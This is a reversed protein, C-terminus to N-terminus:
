KTRIASLQVLAVNWLGSFRVYGKALAFCLVACIPLWGRETAAMSTEISRIAEADSV